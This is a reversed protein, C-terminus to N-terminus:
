HFEGNKELWINLNNSLSSLGKVWALRVCTENWLRKDRAVYSFLLSIFEADTVVHHRAIHGTLRLILSWMEACKIGSEDVFSKAYQWFSASNVFLMCRGSLTFLIFMIVNDFQTCRNM